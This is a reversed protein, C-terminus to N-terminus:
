LPVTKQKEGHRTTAKGVWEQLLCIFSVVSGLFVLRVDLLTLGEKLPFNQKYSHKPKEGKKAKLKTQVSFQFEGHPIREHFKEMLPEEEEM